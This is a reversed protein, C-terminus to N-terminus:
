FNSLLEHFDGDRISTPGDAILSVMDLTMAVDLIKNMNNDIGHLRKGKSAGLPPSTVTVSNEIWTVKPGM